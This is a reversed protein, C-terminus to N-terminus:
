SIKKSTTSCRTQSHTRTRARALTAYTMSPPATEEAGPLRLTRVALGLSLGLLVLAVIWLHYAGRAGIVITAIAADVAMVGLAGADLAVSRAAQTQLQSVALSCLRDAFRPTIPKTSIGVVTRAPRSSVSGRPGYQRHKSAKPRFSPANGGMNTSRRSRRGGANRGGQYCSIKM